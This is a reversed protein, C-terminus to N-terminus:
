GFKILTFVGDNPIRPIIIKVFHTTNRQLWRQGKDKSHLTYEGDAGEEVSSFYHINDGPPTASISMTLVKNFQDGIRKYFENILDTRDVFLCRYASNKTNTHVHELVERHFYVTPEENESRYMDPGSFELVYDTVDAGHDDVVYVNIQMYQHFVEADPLKGAKGFLSERGAEDNALKATGESIAQWSKSIESYENFSNCNLADLILEGLKERANDPVKVDFGLPDVISSHSRDPLVALPINGSYRQKWPRIDPNKENSSFDITIGKTNLNAAAVRVTGDAGNENIIQRITSPYPHTGTIVFPWVGGDCYVMREDTHGEPVLLDKQSLQWQYPSALELSALMEKGTHFWNKWGKVIRGIFSQGMSALKAGYNAPALMILRRLPCDSINGQYNATIWERAVLGGTSHVIMDFPKRLEEKALKEKILSQMRKAVDAVKVDDDMSIYDGLWLLTTKFGSKELFNALPKFSDSTDSWGHVIVVDRDAM